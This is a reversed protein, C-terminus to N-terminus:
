EDSDNTQSSSSPQEKKGMVYGVGGGGFAGVLVKVIDLLM